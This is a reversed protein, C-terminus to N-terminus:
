ATHPKLPTEIQILPNRAFVFEDVIRGKLLHEDIIRDCVEITIEGYWVGEPYVVALPGGKCIRLCDVRSCYISLGAKQLKSLRKKLHKFVNEGKSPSCCNPGSCFLIHRQYKERGEGGIGRSAAKQRLKKKAKKDMKVM